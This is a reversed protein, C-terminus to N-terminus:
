YSFRYFIKVILPITISDFSGSFLSLWLLCPIGGFKKKDAIAKKHKTFFYIKNM